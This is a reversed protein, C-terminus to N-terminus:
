APSRGDIDGKRVGPGGFIEPVWSSAGALRQDLPPQVAHIGGGFERMKLSRQWAEVWICPREADVECNGDGRVGGCPGNRLSKPCSMPCTMGTAHLVCQGCMRCDFLPGKTIRELPRLVRGVREPGVRRLPRAAYHCLGLVIRYARELPRPHDRIWRALTVRL